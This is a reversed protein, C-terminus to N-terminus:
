DQFLVPMLEPYWESCFEYFSQRIENTLEGVSFVEQTPTSVVGFKYAQEWERSDVPKYTTEYLNIIAEPYKLGLYAGYMSWLYMPKMAEDASLKNPAYKEFFVLGSDSSNLKEKQWYQVLEHFTPGTVLYPLVRASVGSDLFELVREEEGKEASMAYIFPRSNGTFLRGLLGCQQFGYACAGWFAGRKMHPKGFLPKELHDQVFTHAFAQAYKPRDEIM